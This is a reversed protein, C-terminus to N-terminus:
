AEGQPMNPWSTNNKVVKQKEIFCKSCIKTDGSM